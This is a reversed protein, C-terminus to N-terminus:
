TPSNYTTTFIRDHDGLIRISKRAIEDYTIWELSQSVNVNTPIKLKYVLRLTRENEQGLSDFFAIFTRHAWQPDCDIYNRAMTIIQDSAFKEPHLSEEPFSIGEESRLFGTRTQLQDDPIITQIVLVVRIPYLNTMIM